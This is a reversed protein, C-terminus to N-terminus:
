CVWVFVECWWGLGWVVESHGFGRPLFGPNHGSRPFLLGRGESQREKSPYQM